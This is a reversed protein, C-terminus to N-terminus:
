CSRWQTKKTRLLLERDVDEISRAVFAIGNKSNIRDIFVKQAPSPYTGKIKVEIALLRGDPMIGLIDAVGKLFHAGPKRFIKKTPDFLGVNQTPWVYVGQAKLYDLISHKIDGEPTRKNM